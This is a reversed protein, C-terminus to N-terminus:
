RLDEAYEHVLDPFPCPPSVNSIPLTDAAGFYMVFLTHVAQGHPEVQSPVIAVFHLAGFYMVFM